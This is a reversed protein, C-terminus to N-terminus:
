NLKYISLIKKWEAIVKPKLLYEFVQQKEKNWEWFDFDIFYIKQSDWMINPTTLLESNLLEARITDKDSLSWLDLKLDLTWKPLDLVNHIRDLFMKLLIYKQHAKELKEQFDPSKKEEPTMKSLDKWNIRKQITLATLVPRRMPNLKRNKGWVKKLSEWLVFYSKPINEWLYKKLIWYKNKLYELNIPLAEASSEKYVYKWLPFVVNDHWHWIFLHERDSGTLINRQSFEEYQSLIKMLEEKLERAKNEYAEFEIKYSASKPQRNKTFAILDLLAQNYKNLVNDIEIRPTNWINFKYENIWPIHTSQSTRNKM